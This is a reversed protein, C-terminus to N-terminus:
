LFLFLKSVYVLRVKTRKRSRSVILRRSGESSHSSLMLLVKSFYNGADNPPTACVIPHTYLTLLRSTQSYVSVGFHRINELIHETVTINLVAVRMSYMYIYSTAQQLRVKIHEIMVTKKIKM